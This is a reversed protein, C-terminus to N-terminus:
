GLRALETGAAAGTVHLQPTMGTARAFGETVAATFDDVRGAAVLAVGCGAFGGGTMRAGICGPAEGACAVIADLAPGSAEFDDRMSAHADALLRGLAVTDGARLADAAAATRAHETVVHRARRRLVPDDLAEVADRDADRLADVGLTAAAADCEARRTNYASGTLERRTTTDMVVVVIGGPLPVHTIDLSRCDILLAHGARAAASSLQDLIGSDVGVWDNEARQGLRAASIPDWARDGTLARCVAMELAASSSLGAGAPVDSAVAGLVPEVGVGAQGMAWAVGQVYAGWGDLRGGVDAPDVVVEAEADDSVLTVPGDHPVAALWLAHDIALPLVYGDNYDTHEGILNVRGPSRVLVAPARGFRARFRRLARERAPHGSM